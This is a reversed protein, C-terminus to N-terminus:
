KEDNGVTTMEKENGLAVNYHLCLFRSSFVFKIVNDSCRYDYSEDFNVTLVADCHLFLSIKDLQICGM